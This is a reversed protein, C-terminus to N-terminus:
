PLPSKPSWLWPRRRVSASWNWSSRSISPCSIRLPSMLVTTKSPSATLWKGLSTGRRHSKQSVHEPFYLFNVCELVLYVIPVDPSGTVISTVFFNFVTYIVSYFTHEALIKATYEKFLVTSIYLQKSKSVVPDFIYTFLIGTM